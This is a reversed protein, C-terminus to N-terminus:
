GALEDEVEREERTPQAHGRSWRVTVVPLHSQRIVKEAVSGLMSHSLGERGHTGMVIADAGNANAVSVIEKAVDGVVALTEVGLGEKRLPEAIRDLERRAGSMVYDDVRVATPEGNPTILADPAVNPPLPSVHLLMLRAGHVECLDLALRLAHAACASFDHPVLIHKFAAM